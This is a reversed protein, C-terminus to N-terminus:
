VFDKVKKTKFTNMKQLQLKFTLSIINNRQRKSSNGFHYLIVIITSLVILIKLPTCGANLIQVRAVPSFHTIPSFFQLIIHELQLSSKLNIRSL